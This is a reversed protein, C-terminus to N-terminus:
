EKLKVSRNTMKTLLGFQPLLNSMSFMLKISFISKSVNFLLQIKGHFLDLRRSYDIQNFVKNKDFRQHILGSSLNRLALFSILLSLLFTLKTLNLTLTPKKEKM